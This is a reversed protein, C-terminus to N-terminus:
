GCSGMTALGYLLEPQYAPRQGAFMLETTGSIKMKNRTFMRQADRNSVPSDLYLKSGAPVAGLAEVFLGEASRRDLAAFPGLQSAEGCPQIVAFGAEDRLLLGRKVTVSLLTDRRDGWAQCDISNVLADASSYNVDTGFYATSQRGSGVWRLVTDIRKFGHKEYLKQGDKSATLWITEVGDSQLSDLARVFLREGIGQGRAEGDVILNGIWGSRDHRLATVYGVPEGSEARAVCCGQPFNALLYDFEWREAVWNECAALRLFPPIDDPTFPEIKM